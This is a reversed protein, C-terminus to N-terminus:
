GDMLHLTFLLHYMREKYIFFFPWSFSISKNFRSLCESILCFSKWPFNLAVWLPLPAECMSVCEVVTFICDRITLWVLNDPQPRNLRLECSHINSFTCISTGIRESGIHLDLTDEEGLVYNFCSVYESEIAKMVRGLLPFLVYFLLWGM